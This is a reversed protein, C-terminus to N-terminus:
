KKIIRTGIIGLFFGGLLEILYLLFWGIREIQVDLFEEANVLSLYVTHLIVIVGVITIIAGFITIPELKFKIESM